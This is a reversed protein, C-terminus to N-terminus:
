RSPSRRLNKRAMESLIDLHAAGRAVQHGIGVPHGTDRLVEPDQAHGAVEERDASLPRNPASADDAADYKPNRGSRAGVSTRTPKVFLKTEFDLGALPGSLRPDAARLLLHLRARLRRSSQDLPRLRHRRSTATSSRARSRSRCTPRSRRCSRSSQWGDDFPM